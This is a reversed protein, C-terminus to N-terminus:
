LSHIRVLHAFHERVMWRRFRNKAQGKKLKYINDQKTILPILPKFRNNKIVM